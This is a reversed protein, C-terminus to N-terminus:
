GGPKAIALLPDDFLSMGQSLSAADYTPTSGDFPDLAHFRGSDYGSLPVTHEHDVLHVVKGSSLPVNHRQAPKLELPIWIIVPQRQALAARKTWPACCGRRSRGRCRVAPGSRKWRRSCDRPTSATTM